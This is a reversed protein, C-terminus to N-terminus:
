LAPSDLFRFDELFQDFGPAPAAVALGNSSIIYSRGRHAIVVAAGV